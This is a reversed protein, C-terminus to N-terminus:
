IHNIYGVNRVRRLNIHARIFPEINGNLVSYLEPTVIGTRVDQVSKKPRLNYRRTEAGHKNRSTHLGEDLAMIVLKAKLRNLAKTKNAFQSRESSCQVTTKTPIHHICVATKSNSPPFCTEIERDDIDLDVTNELFLPIVDISASCTELVISKDLSDNIMKHIGREGSLYGYMYKKEFEITASKIGYGDSPLKELVTVNCSHNEAWKTYMFMLKETWMESAIGELGATITMCAGEKDYPGTLLKSMEYYDLFRNVDLSANYAEEFLKHNVLDIQALQTILKAEEAKHQVDKLDNVMKIADALTILSENSITIDSNWLNCRCLSEEQKIRREEELEVAVPAIMEARYIVDDIKKKVSFLGLEKYMSKRDEMSSASRIRCSSLRVRVLSLIRPRLTSTTVASLSELPTKAM